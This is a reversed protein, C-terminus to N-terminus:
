SGWVCVWSIMAISKILLGLRGKPWFFAASVVELAQQPGSCPVGLLLAATLEAILVPAPALVCRWGKSNNLISNVEGGTEAASVEEKCQPLMSLYM